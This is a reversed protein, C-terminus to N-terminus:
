AGVGYVQNQKMEITDGIGYVQNQKMEITDGVGYVQNQKMEITDGIGYVQNQKMEITDGIGYVQNRQMELTTDQLLIMIIEKEWYNSNLGSAVYSYSVVDVTKDGVSEAAHPIGPIASKKWDAIRTIASSYLDHIAISMYLM